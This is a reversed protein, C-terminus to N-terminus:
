RCVVKNLAVWFLKRNEVPRTYRQPEILFVCLVSAGFGYRSAALVSFHESPVQHYRFFPHAQRHGQKRQGAYRAATTAAMPAAPAATRGASVGIHRRGLGVGDGRIAYAGAGAVKFAHQTRGEASSSRGDRNGDM